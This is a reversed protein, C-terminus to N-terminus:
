NDLDSSFLTNTFDLSSVLQNSNDVSVASLTLFAKLVCYSDTCPHPFQSETVMLNIKSLTYIIENAM